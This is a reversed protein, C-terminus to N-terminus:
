EKDEYISPESLFERKIVAILNKYAQLACVNNMDEHQKMLDKILEIVAKVGDKFEGGIVGGETEEEHVLRIGTSEKGIIKFNGGDFSFIIVFRDTPHIGPLCHNMVDEVWQKWYEPKHLYIDKIVAYMDESIFKKDYFYGVSDFNVPYGLMRIGALYFKVVYEPDYINRKTAKTKKVSKKMSAGGRKTKIFQAWLKELMEKLKKTCEEMSEIREILDDRWIMPEEDDITTEKWPYPIVWYPKGSTTDQEWEWYTTSPIRMWNIIRSTSVPKMHFYKWFEEYVNFSDTKKMKGGEKSSELLM